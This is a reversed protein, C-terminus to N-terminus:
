ALAEFVQRYQALVSGSSHRQEFWTRCARSQARWHEGDAFLREIEAAGQEATEFFEGPGAPVTAVTPVGRAWAKQFTNPM